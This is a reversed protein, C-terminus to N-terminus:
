KRMQTLFDAPPRGPGSSGSAGFASFGAAGQNNGGFAGFGGGGFGSGQVAGGFGGASTAAAAFGGTKSALSAFGGGTAAAAFGGGVSPAAASFAGGAAAGAFGSNSSPVSAFAGSSSGAFGGFGGLQRSQGFSGLVSGLAQQGGFQAPQGFGSQQGGGIQAPQGFGTQQAAGIQASQGFGSQIQAPQGFGSQIQAPQGFGSQIQAPQGFGAQQGAGIQASQGFGSQQGSGVQAPQGFGSLGSSFTTSFTSSSTSQSPQAPQASPISLSAPRFLQGPITTLTFPSGSSKNDSTGFSSGFPNSKKPSSSPASGLGFGSLAGLNLDAKGSPSEEEMDDEDSSLNSPGADKRTSTVAAPEAPVIKPASPPNSPLSGSTVQLLSTKNETTPIGTSTAIASVTTGTVESTVEPKSENKGLDSSSEKVPTPISPRSSSVTGEHVTPSTEPISKQPPFISSVAPSSVDSNKSLSAQMTSTPPAASSSAGLNISFSSSQSMPSFAHPQPAVQPTGKVSSQVTDSVGGLRFPKGHVVAPDSPESSLSPKNLDRFIGGMNQPSIGLGKTSGLSSIAQDGYRSKTTLTSGTGSEGSLTKVPLSSTMSPLTDPRANAPTLTTKFTLSNSKPMAHTTGFSAVNSSSISDRADKQKYSFSLPSSPALKSPQGASRMQGPLELHKQESGQSSGAPEKAWKFLSSHQPGSTKTKEDLVESPSHLRSAYSEVISSSSSGSFNEQSLAAMQSDFMKKNSRFPLDSSIKLRQQQAIRKVTTKQPELSALSRDLSERRRRATEPEAIKSPGLMSKTHEKTSPFGQILKSPTGASFKPADSPHALGISEFLEKTVTGRKKSPSSINLASVQKSLCESLQEAAALQSNLANYVSSLQTQSSRSKNSYVARRSSAVRGTDGFKNMELNNFHRELEVLQNTLNQNAKLINQRKVEFEPSLKQRNWIDWYQTDSSQSLIGKMYAQRASVQFMKNRLDETKSYKEEVKNKFVQLLEMFNQLDGELVSLPHQQSTICADIFGGDKEIYALLTDLEETMDNISYFKKSLDQETNGLKFSRSDASTHARSNHPKGITQQPSPSVRSTAVAELNGTAFGTSSSGVPTPKNPSILPSSMSSLGASSGLVKRETTCSTQPSYSGFSTAENREAAKFPVLGDSTFVSSKFSPNGGDKETNQSGGFSGLPKTLDFGGKGLQSNVSTSGSNLQSSSVLESSGKSGTSNLGVNNATSFSFPMGPKINGTPALISAPASPFAVNVQKASLSKQDSSISLSSSAIDKNKSVSSSSKIDRPEHHGREAQASSPEAGPEVLLSKAVPSTVSPTLDKGSVTAPSNTKNVNSDEITYPSTQPLDSPDSIRALYYIILKGEGTLCLLIHQPAVEKQEPGVLVTIKQFLSVNEVGFGLIVNDDGNEQLDIRPSYKDELMELYVVNREDDTTSPWKLLSIHDNISKKNSVVMLDWRHLYGLLLNPGVRSPLIDDMIGQFFDVYTFVVPKSSSEFFTDGGSRIVQVVYNEENGEENLQVCGVVISDDRVWGIADVKIDTDEPDTDDPWLQFLLTMCCTEKLDSSLIRLSNERAVVIHNGDKCCDVADVSEMVDKLGERLSGQSLLGSNSLVIYAKSDHNLWKFDKVTDSQGLSCSSSPEVDKDTLLSAPSFFHIETGTCAALVSDDGSLALLSVGPLPVDAVCCDRACRTSAKGKARAEKSAEILAKTRVAMFGQNGSRAKRGYM